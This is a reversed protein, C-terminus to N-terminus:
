ASASSAAGISGPGRANGDPSADGARDDDPARVALGARVARRRARRARVASAFPMVAFIVAGTVLLPRRGLVDSWAGAPLKLLIGTLTSAVAVFGVM